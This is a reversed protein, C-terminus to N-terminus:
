KRIMFVEGEFEGDDSYFLLKGDKLRWYGDNDINVNPDNIDDIYIKGDYMNWTLEEVQTEDDEVKVYMLVENNRKFEFTIDTKEWVSEVMGIVGGVIMQELLNPEKSEKKLIEKINIELKWKGYIDKEKEMPFSSITLFMLSFLFTKM